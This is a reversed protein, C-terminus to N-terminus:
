WQCCSSRLYVTYYIFIFGNLNPALSYLSTQQAFLKAYQKNQHFCCPQYFKLLSILKAKPLALTLLSFLKAPHM